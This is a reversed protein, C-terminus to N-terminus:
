TKIVKFSINVNRDRYFSTRCYPSALNQGRVESMFAIDVHHQCLGPASKMAPRIKVDFKTAIPVASIHWQAMM